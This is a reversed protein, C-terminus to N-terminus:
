AILHLDSLLHMALDGGVALNGHGGDGGVGTIQVASQDFHVNNIQDAEATSHPGAIAINIPAYIAVSVDILTGSAHGSGGNGAGNAGIAIADSGGWFGASAISAHGAIAANGNGGSGGVGAAQYSSQNLDVNNTQNADINSNYGAVAINIPNYLAFSTHLLSGYFNGDGGNGAHNDGTQILEGHGGAGGLLSGYGLASLEGGLAANGSGGNGGVGAIQISSQDIEVTNSQSAHASGGFSALAINIPHYIVVPADLLLGSFYGDGGNGANNDGTAIVSSASSAIGVNGGFAVNGNGGHGGIGAMQIASQDFTVNNTQNAQASSGYGITVSINIPEYIALSAHIIGGYFYGGGGNGAENTGTHPSGSDHWANGSGSAPKLISVNGGIAANDYGGNGGIGAIQTAHQDIEVSNSQHADAKGHFGAFATNSPKFMAIPANVEAGSFFGNGGNGAHSDGTAIVGSTSSAIGVNGGSALNGSENTGAHLPGLDLWANGSSAAPKLIAVNGGIAANDHGGNGGIGAIQTAHQDIEVRNSQHADAVGHSGAFATSSPKLMAVAANVEVGSFFGNGGDGAHSDGTDIASHRSSDLWPAGSAGHGDHGRHPQHHLRIGDSMHRFSM